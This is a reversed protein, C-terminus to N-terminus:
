RNTKRVGQTNKTDKSDEKLALILLTLNGIGIPIAILIAILLLTDNM